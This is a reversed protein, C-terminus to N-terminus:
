IFSRFTQYMKFGLNSIKYWIPHYIRINRGYEVLTGGFSRKYDRVGYPVNPSGAGGFDYWQYGHEKAWKMTYWNLSDQVYPPKKSVSGMYWAYVLDRYTLLVKSGLYEENLSVLFFRAMGKDVLERFASEFLSQDALPIKAQQYTNRLSKYFSPILDIDTMEDVTVGEKENKTIHRRRNRDLQAWIQEVSKDLQLVFNLHPRFRYQPVTQILNSTDYIHRIESYMADKRAMNDYASLLLRIIAPDSGGNVLPGGQVISRSSAIALLGDFEKIIVGAIVGVISNDDENIVGFKLPKYHTTNQYVRFMPTTQFVSGSPHNYVYNDWDKDPIEALTYDM